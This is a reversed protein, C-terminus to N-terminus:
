AHRDKLINYKNNINKINDMIIVLLLAMLAAFVWAITDIPVLGFITNLPTYIAIITLAISLLSAYALYKNIFPSRTLVLKRFSRFSFANFVAFLTMLTFLATRSELIDLELIKICLYFLGTAGITMLIGSILLFWLVPKTIIESKKRPPVNMVDKARPNFVLSIATIEDSIINMFLIQIALLPLPLGLIISTAILFLQAINISIQYASFKQINRFITRGESIADVITAFHDDKLTMDAAERSVDTGNKGMAVGIHSEKLAPADNVGDGTMTVIEGNSKLARVIRLKHEPRVRAFIAIKGVIKSLEDDTMADLDQGSITDGELGIELAIAKATEVSDGTIMKVTIGATHCLRIAERVEPRPPDNMGAIGIFVLEEEIDTASPGKINKYALGITRLSKDSMSHVIELIKKRESSTMLVTKKDKLIYKCKKLLIDPAGKSYVTFNGKDEVIVSMMKRESSFPKEDIRRTEFDEKYIGFKAGLSILASETPSGQTIVENDVRQEIRADNCLVAANFLFKLAYEEKLDIKKDNYYLMGNHNDNSVKIDLIKNNAYIKTVTMQGTTITGTKDSCIVTTEGLTEIISMRHIIANKKAMRYAGNALATILVVPFGEPFAAISLALVVVLIEIIKDYSLPASSIMLIIGTLISVVIALYILQKILVNVKKQLPLEKEVSSISQAINGFKTNMGTHVAKVVCKGTIIFTGMYVMNNQTFNNSNDNKTSKKVEKSEGTLASENVGLEKEELILCDAPVRDGTRLIIIDGPVINTTEIEKEKGDRRVISMSTMMSKLAEISREAKFEQFFGVSIVILIVGFVVYATNVKGVFLSILLAGLMLYIVPNTRIQRLLIKLPANEKSQKLENKGYKLLLDEAEKSSLGSHLESHM